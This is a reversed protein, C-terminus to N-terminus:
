NRKPLCIHMFQEKEEQDITNSFYRKSNYAKVFIKQIENKWSAKDFYYFNRIVFSFFQYPTLPATVPIRCNEYQGLTFHAMPHDGIKFAKRDFDFRFPIAVVRRAIINAYIEDDLYIDPESQFPLLTPAPFFALRHTILEKGSFRYQLHMMAGDIMLVNFVRQVRLLDYLKEYTEKKHILGGLYTSVDVDCIGHYQKTSPFNQDNILGVEIVDKTVDQIEKCIDKANPTMM